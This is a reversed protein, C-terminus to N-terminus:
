KLIEFFGRPIEKSSKRDFFAGDVFLSMASEFPVECLAGVSFGRRNYARYKRAALLYRACEFECGLSSDSM